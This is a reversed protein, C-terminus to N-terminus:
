GRPRGRKKKGKLKKQRGSFPDRLDVRSRSVMNAMHMVATAHAILTDYYVRAPIIKIKHGKKSSLM